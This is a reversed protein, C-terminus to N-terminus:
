GKPRGVAVASADGAQQMDHSQGAPGAIARPAITQHENQVDSVNEHRESKQEGARAREVDDTSAPMWAQVTPATPVIVRATM